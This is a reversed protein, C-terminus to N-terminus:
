KKFYRSLAIHMVGSDILLGLISALILSYWFSAIFFAYGFFSLIFIVFLHAYISIWFILLKNKLKLESYKCVVGLFYLVIFTGVYGFDDILFKLWTAIITPAPTYYSKTEYINVVISTDFISYLRLFPDLTYIMDYEDVGIRIYENLGAMGNTLYFYISPLATLGYDGWEGTVRNHTALDRSYSIIGILLIAFFGYKVITLFKVQIFARNSGMYAAFYISLTMLLAFRSQLAIHTMLTAIIVVVVVKDVKGRMQHYIGVLFMSIYDVPIYFGIGPGWQGSRSLNYIDDGHTFAALFSGYHVYIGLWVSIARIVLLFGFLYLIFKIDVIKTQNAKYSFAVEPLALHITLYGFWMIIPVFIILLWTEDLTEYYPILRLTYLSVIFFWLLIYLNLPSLLNNSQRYIIFLLVM